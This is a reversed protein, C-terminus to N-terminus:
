PSSFSDSSGLIARLAIRQLHINTLFHIGAEGFFDNLLQVMRFVANGVTGIQFIQGHERIGEVM